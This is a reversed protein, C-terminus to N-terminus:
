VDRKINIEYAMYNENLVYLETFKLINLITHDGGSLVQKTFNYQSVAM